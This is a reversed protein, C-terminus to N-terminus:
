FVAELEAESHRNCFETFSEEGQRNTQYFNILKEVAPAVEDATLRKIRRNFVANTGLSGGLFVDFHEVLEGNIKKTCGQLGVDAIWHQGCSNPCGNVNIRFFDSERWNVNQDILNVISKARQKTETVALNCFETGTCAIAGTKIPSLNVPLGIAALRQTAEVTKANAVNVIYFSQMITLRIHGSGYAAAIEGVAELQEATIRGAIVPVGIWSLGPQQQPHVGLKDGYGRSTPQESEADRLEYGLLAETERRLKEAGWVAVLYKLRAHKRSKRYGHDRYIKTIAELVEIVQEPRIFVNLDQAVHPETSLGGGV